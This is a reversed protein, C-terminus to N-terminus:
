CRKWTAQAAIFGYHVRYRNEEEGPASIALVTFDYVNEVYDMTFFDPSHIGATISYKGPQLNNALNVEIVHTGAELSYPEPDTDINLTHAIVMGDPTVVKLDILAKLAQDSKCTMRFRMPQRFFVEDVMKDAADLMELSTMRIIGTNATRDTDSIEGKNESAKSFYRSIVDQVPADLEMHGHKLLVARNCLTKVSPMHHSVFLVTRGEYRSADKMRGLCKKQFDADGVALVEDVILIDPDLFAAVAFALRVYMGSSYRKVPTDIYKEVGAFAVIEDFKKRIESRSMGLIAGNLFVNEKGTLEPHFGTGVELLSAIKGKVRIEGSTPATVRSMIKLLTSKGAGNKGVIGLVDGKAVDFSVDRLAWNIDADPGAAAAKTKMGLKQALDRRFTGGGFVGLRYMKSINRVSIVTASM